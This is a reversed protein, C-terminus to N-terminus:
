RPVHQMWGNNILRAKKMFREDAQLNRPVYKGLFPNIFLMYLMLEPTRQLVPVNEFCTYDKRVALALIEPELWKNGVYKIAGPNQAVALQVLAKQQSETFRSLGALGIVNGDRLVASSVLSFTLFEPDAYQIAKPDRSVAIAVQEPTQLGRAIYRLNDASGYSVAYEAMDPSVFSAPVDALDDPWVYVACRCLREDYLSRDIDKLHVMGSRLRMYASLYEQSLSVFDWESDPIEFGYELIAGDIRELREEKERSGDQGVLNCLRVTRAILSRCSEPAEKLNSLDNGLTGNLYDSEMLEDSLGELYLYDATYGGAQWFSFRNIIVEARTKMREPFYRSVKHYAGELWKSRKELADIRRLRSDMAEYYYGELLKAQTRLEELEDGVIGLQVLMADALAIGLRFDTEELKGANDLLTFLEASVDGLFSAVLIEDGATKKGEDMMSVILKASHELGLSHLIDWGDSSLGDLRISQLLISGLLEAAKDVDYKRTM